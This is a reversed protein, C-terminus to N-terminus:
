HGARACLDPARSLVLRVLRESPISDRSKLLSWLVATLKGAHHAPCTPESRDRRWRGERYRRLATRLRRAIERDSAGAYFAAAAILLRDREAILSLTAPLRHGRGDGVVHRLPVTM